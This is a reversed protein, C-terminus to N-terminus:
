GLRRLGEITTMVAPWLGRSSKPAPSFDQRTEGAGTALPATGLAFDAAKALGPAPCCPVGLDIDCGQRGSLKCRVL